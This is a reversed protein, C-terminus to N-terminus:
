AGSSAVTSNVEVVNDSVPDFTKSGAAVVATLGSGPPANVQASIVAGASSGPALDGLECAVIDPREPIPQACAGGTAEADLVTTGEPLAVLLTGDQSSEPGANSVSLDYTLEGGAAV